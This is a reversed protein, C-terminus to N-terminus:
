QVGYAYTIQCDVTLSTSGYSSTNLRVTGTTEVILKALAGTSNHTIMRVTGRPRYTSPIANAYSIESTIAGTRTFYFVATKTEDNM